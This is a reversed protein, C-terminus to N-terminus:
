SGLNIDPLAAKTAMREVQFASAGIVVGLLRVQGLILDPHIKFHHSPPFWPPSHSSTTMWQLSASVLSLMRLMPTQQPHSRPSKNENSLALMTLSSLVLSKIDGGHICWLLEPALLDVEEKFIHKTSVNLLSQKSHM